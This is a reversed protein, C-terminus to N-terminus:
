FSLYSSLKTHTTIGNSSIHLPKFETFLGKSIKKVRTPENEFSSTQLVSGHNRWRGVVQLDPILHDFPQIIEFHMDNANQIKIRLVFSLFLM